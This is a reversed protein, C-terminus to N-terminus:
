VCAHLVCVLEFSIWVLEERVRKWIRPIIYHRSIWSRREMIVLMGQDEGHVKRSWPLFINLLIDIESILILNFFSWLPLKGEKNDEGTYKKHEDQEEEFPNNNNQPFKLKKVRNRVLSSLSFVSVSYWHASTQKCTEQKLSSWWWADHTHERAHKNTQIIHTHTHINNRTRKSFGDEDTNMKTYTRPAIRWQILHNIDMAEHSSPPQSHSVVVSVNHLKGYTRGAKNDFIESIQFWLLHVHITLNKKSCSPSSSVLANM